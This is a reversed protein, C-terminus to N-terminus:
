KKRKKIFYVLLRYKIKKIFSKYPIRNYLKSYKEILYDAYDKDIVKNIGLYLDIISYKKFGKKLKIIVYYKNKDKVVCEYDIYFGNEVVFKRLEYLNNNSQIVINDILDLSANKLIHIITNTGMGSIVITDGKKLEINSLGDTKNIILNNAKYKEKNKYAFSLANENIDTAIVELAKNNKLLSISLLAHDCGVDIVRNSNPVVDYIAKLRKSLM